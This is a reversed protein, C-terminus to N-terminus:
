AVKVKLIEINSIQAPTDIMRGQAFPVIMRFTVESARPDIRVAMKFIDIFDYDSSVITIHTYGDSVAKQIFGTIFKDVVEKGQTFGSLYIKNINEVHRLVKPEAAKDSKLRILHTETDTGAIYKHYANLLGRLEQDGDIFAIKKAVPAPESKFFKILKTFM